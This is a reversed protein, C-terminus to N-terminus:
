GLRRSVTLGDAIPLLLSDARTDARVHANFERVARATAGPEADTVEGHYLVNDSVILGGPRMRPVLEEWYAIYGPKDADLFALDIWPEEPLARLTDAAPGLRLEVRDEVGAARWAERAIATWEESIDCALLRGDAPMARAMTLASFGTFTGVEVIRRAGTLRVLFALVPAQVPSIQLGAVDGLARTREILARQHEDLPENHEMVYAFLEPTLRVQKPVTDDTM